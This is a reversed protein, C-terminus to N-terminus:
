YKFAMGFGVVFRVGDGGGGAVDAFGPAIVIPLKKFPTLSAFIALDQGTWDAILGAWEAARLGASAVVSVGCDDVGHPAGNLIEEGCFQGNGGGVNLTVSSLYGKPVGPINLDVVKSVAGYVSQQETNATGGTLRVGEIGAAFAIGHVLMRSAKFSTVVKGRAGRRFASVSTLVAEVGIADLPDGLGFGVMLHLDDLNSYRTTWQYSGGVYMDALSPLM